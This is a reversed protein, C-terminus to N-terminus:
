SFFVDSAKTHLFYANGYGLSELKFLFKLGLVLVSSVYYQRLEVRLENESTGQIPPSKPLVGDTFSNDSYFNPILIREIEDEQM